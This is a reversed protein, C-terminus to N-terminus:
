RIRFAFIYKGSEQACLDIGYLYTTTVISLFDPFCRGCHSNMKSCGHVPRSLNTIFLHRLSGPLALSVPLHISVHYFLRIESIMKIIAHGDLPGYMSNLRILVLTYSITDQFCFMRIKTWQLSYM